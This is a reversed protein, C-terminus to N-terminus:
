RSPTGRGLGLTVTSRLLFCRREDLLRTSSSSCTLRAPREASDAQFFTTASPFFHNRKPFLPQAQFFTTTPAQFFTTASPFFHDHKSFLPRTHKSFLPRAQVLTPTKAQYFTTASSFFHDRKSFLPRAQFIITTKKAPGDPGERVVFFRRYVIIKRGQLAM